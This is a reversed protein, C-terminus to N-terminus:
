TPRDCACQEVASRSLTAVVLTGRMNPARPFDLHKGFAGNLNTDEGNCGPRKWSVWATFVKGAVNHKQSFELEAAVMLAYLEPGLRAAVDAAKGDFVSRPFELTTNPRKGQYPRRLIYGAYPGDWGAEVSQGALLAVHPDIKGRCIMDMAASRSLELEGTFFFQFNLYQLTGDAKGDHARSQDFSVCNWDETLDITAANAHTCPATATCCAWTCDPYFTLTNRDPSPTGTNPHSVQYRKGGRAPGNEGALAPGGRELAREVRRMIAADNERWSPEVDSPLRSLRSRETHVMAELTGGLAGDIYGLQSWAACDARVADSPSVQHARQAPECHECCLLRKNGAAYPTASPMPSAAAGLPGVLRLLRESHRRYQDEDILGSCLCDRMAVLERRVTDMSVAAM